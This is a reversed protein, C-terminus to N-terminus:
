FPASAVIAMRGYEVELGVIAQSLADEDTAQTPLYRQKGRPQGVLSLGPAGVLM